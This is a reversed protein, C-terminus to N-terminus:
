RFDWYYRDAEQVLTQTTDSLEAIEAGAPMLDIAYNGGGATGDHAAQELTLACQHEIRALDSEIEEMREASRRATALRQGIVSLTAERSRKAATGTGDAIRSRLLDSESELEEPRIGHMAYRLVELSTLLRLHVWLLYELSRPAGAATAPDVTRGVMASARSILLVLRLARQRPRPPLRLLIELRQEHARQAARSLRQPPLQRLNHPRTLLWSGLAIGMASGASWLVGSRSDGLLCLITSICMVGSIPFGLARFFCNLGGPDKRNRVVPKLFFEPLSLGPASMSFSGAASRVM